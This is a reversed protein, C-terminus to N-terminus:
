YQSLCSSNHAVHFSLAISAGQCRYLHGMCLSRTVRAYPAQVTWRRYGPFAEELPLAPTDVCGYVKLRCDTRGALHVPIITACFVCFSCSLLFLPPTSRLFLSTSSLSPPTSLPFITTPHLIYSFFLYTFLYVHFM